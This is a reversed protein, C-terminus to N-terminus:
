VNLDLHTIGSYSLNMLSASNVPPIMFNLFRYAKNAARNTNKRYAQAV